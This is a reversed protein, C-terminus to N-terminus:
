PLGPNITPDTLFLTPLLPLTNNTFASIELAAEGKPSLLYAGTVRPAGLYNISGIYLGGSLGILATAPVGAPRIRNLGQMLENFRAPAIPVEFKVQWATNVFDETITVTYGFATLLYLVIAIPTGHGSVLTAPIRNAYSGDSEQADRPIVFLQGWADLWVGSATTFSLNAILGDSAEAYRLLAAARSAQLFAFTPGPRVFSSPLTNIQALVDAYQM